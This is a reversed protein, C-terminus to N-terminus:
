IKTSPLVVKFYNYYSPFLKLVYLIGLSFSYITLHFCFDVVVFFFYFSLGWSILIYNCIKFSFKISSNLSVFSVKILLGSSLILYNDLNCQLLCFLTDNFIYGSTEYSSFPSLFIAIDWFHCFNNTKHNFLSM